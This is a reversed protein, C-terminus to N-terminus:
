GRPELPGILFTVTLHGAVNAVDGWSGAVNAVCKDHFFASHNMSSDCAADHSTQQQVEFLLMSM